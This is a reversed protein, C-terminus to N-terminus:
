SSTPSDIAQELEDLAEGTYVALRQLHPLADRDGTFGIGFNGSTTCSTIILAVGHYLMAIGNLSEMRAGALYQVQKSGQVNSISVNYPPAVKGGIGIMNQAMFPGMFLSPYLELAGRPLARLHNKAHVSSRAIAAVREVPDEIHTCLKMVAVTFANTAADDGEIRISVPTGATLSQAPLDGIEDLYRRLGGACIALFVENVTVGATKAVRNIRTFEYTQTAVRRQRGVPGNLVSKPAVFPIAADPNEQKRADRIMDLATSAIAGTTRLREKTKQGFGLASNDTPKRGAPGVTWLPRVLRSDPDPCITQHVRSLAGMGDILAHHIKVLIAFRNHELGEILHMEWLPREPDLPTSHLRSVLVGLEREGGPKPLASHRFHYDLDIEDDALVDWAPAIRKRRLSRLRYNFPPAYTAQARMDRVLNRVFADDAGDPIVYTSVSGVHQPTEASEVALFLRDALGVKPM